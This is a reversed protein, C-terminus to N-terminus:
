EFSVSAFKASVSVKVKLRAKASVRVKASAFGGGAEVFCEFVVGWGFDDCSVILGVGSFQCGNLFCFLVWSAEFM